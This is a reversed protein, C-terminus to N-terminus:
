GEKRFVDLRRLAIKEVSSAWDSEFRGFGTKYIKSQIVELRDQIEKQAKGKKLKKLACEELYQVQGISVGLSEAICKLTEGQLYRRQLTDWEDKNTYREVIGWLERKEQEKYLKDVTDNELNFDSQLNDGVTMETDESLPADLSTISQSYYKLDAVESQSIMMRDAIEKDTPTRSQEQLLREVTKNYRIIRQRVYSPIKVVSGCKEIYRQASQKIWYRAYTMFLINESTEYHQVAEWLGFYAEQLLDEISEYATYPKVIKKVYSINKRYLHEMNESVNVDNKINEVLQENTM